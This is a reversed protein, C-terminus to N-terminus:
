FIRRDDRDDSYLSYGGAEIEIEVKVQMLFYQKAVDHSRASIYFAVFNSFDCLILLFLKIDKFQYFKYQKLIFNM